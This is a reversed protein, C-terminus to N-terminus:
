EASEAMAILDSLSLTQGFSLLKYQIGDNHWILTTLQDQHSWTKQSADWGGYILVAPHGNILIEQNSDPGILTKNFLTKGVPTPTLNDVGNHPYITLQVFGNQTARWLLKVVSTELRIVSVEPRQHLNSPIYTPIAFDFPVAKQAETLSMPRSHIASPEIFIPKSEMVTLHIQGVVMELQGLMAKTTPSAFLMLVILLVVSGWVLHSTKIVQQMLPRHPIAEIRQQLTKGPPQQLNLLETALEADEAQLEKLLPNLRPQSM